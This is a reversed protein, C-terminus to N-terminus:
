SGAEALNWHTRGLLPGARPKGGLVGANAMGRGLATNQPMVSVGPPLFRLLSPHWASRYAPILKKPLQPAAGATKMGVKRQPSHGEGGPPWPHFLECDSTGDRWEVWWRWWLGARVWPQGTAVVTTGLERWKGRIRVSGDDGKWTCLMKLVLQPSELLCYQQQNARKLFQVRCISNKLLLSPLIFTQLLKLPTECEWIDKRQAEWSVVWIKGPHLIKNDEGANWQCSQPLATMGM